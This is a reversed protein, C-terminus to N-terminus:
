FKNKLPGMIGGSQGEMKGMFLIPQRRETYNGFQIKGGLYNNVINAIRQNKTQGQVNNSTILVKKNNLKPCVCSSNKNERSEIIRRTLSSIYNYYM